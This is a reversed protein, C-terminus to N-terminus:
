LASMEFAEDSALISDFERKFEAYSEYRASLILTSSCTSASPFRSLSQAGNFSVKIGPKRPTSTSGTVFRLFQRLHNTDMDGVYITLFNFVRQQEARLDEHEKLLKKLVKGPTPTLDEYLKCIKDTTLEQQLVVPDQIGKRMASLFFMPKFIFEARAMTLIHHLLEEESKAPLCTMAFRQYLGFVADKKYDPVINGELISCLVDREFQTVYWLFSRKLVDDPVAEEGHLMAMFSAECFQVPINKTLRWGHELIRGLAPLIEESMQSM